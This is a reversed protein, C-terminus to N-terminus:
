GSAAIRVGTSSGTLHGDAGLRRGLIFEYWPLAHPTPFVAAGLSIPSNAPFELHERLELELRSLEDIFLRRTHLYHAVSRAFPEAEGNYRVVSGPQNLLEMAAGADQELTQPDSSDGLAEALRRRTSADLAEPLATPDPRSPAAADQDREADELKRVLFRSSPVLHSRFEGRLLSWLHVRDYLRWFIGVQVQLALRRALDFRLRDLEVRSEPDGEVLATGIKRIMQPSGACVESAGVLAGTEDVLNLFSDATVPLQIGAALREHLTRIVGFLGAGLKHGVALHAPVPGTESRQQLLYIAPRALQDVVGALIDTWTASAGEPERRFATIEGLVANYYRAVQAMASMNMWGNHRIGSYPCQRMDMEVGARVVADARRESVPRKEDDVMDNLDFIVSSVSWAGGNLADVLSKSM